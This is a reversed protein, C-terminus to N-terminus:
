DIELRHLLTRTTARSPSGTGTFDARDPHFLTYACVPETMAWWGQTAGTEDVWFEVQESPNDERSGWYVNRVVWRLVANTQSLDLITIVRLPQISAGAAVIPELLQDVCSKAARTAPVYVVLTPEASQTPLVFQRTVEVADGDELVVEKLEAHQAPERAKSDGSWGPLLSVLAIVPLLSVLSWSHM